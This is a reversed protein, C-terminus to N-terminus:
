NMRGGGYTETGNTLDRFPLFLDNAYNKTSRLDLDQYVNLVYMQKQITFHLEGYKVENSKVGTTTPMLFPKENPTRIFEAVVRFTTDIPFFDLGKFKKKDKKLLPSVRPNKFETNIKKQFNRVDNLVVEEINEQNTIIEFDNTDHYRKGRNCSLTLIGIVILFALYKM